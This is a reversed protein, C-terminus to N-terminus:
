RGKKDKSKKGMLSNKMGQWVGRIEKDTKKVEEESLKKEAKQNYKTISRKRIAKKNPRKSREAGMNKTDRYRTEKKIKVQNRYQEPVKSLDDTFAITGDDKTWKYIEGSALHPLMFLITLFFSVTIVFQKRTVNHIQLIPVANVLISMM